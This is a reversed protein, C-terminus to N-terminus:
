QHILVKSKLREVVKRKIDISDIDNWLLYRKLGDHLVDVKNEIEDSEIEDIGERELKEWSFVHLMAIYYLKQLYESEYTTGRDLLEEIVYRYECFLFNRAEDDTLPKISIQPITKFSDKFQKNSEYILYRDDDFEIPSFGLM